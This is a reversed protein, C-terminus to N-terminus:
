SNVRLGTRGDFVHTLDARTSFRIKNGTGEFKHVGPLSITADEGTTEIQGHLLTNAGLPETMSVSMPFQGNEDITFHEPRVGLMGPGDPGPFQAVAAGGMVVQNARIEADFVNM